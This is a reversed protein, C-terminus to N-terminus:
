CWDELFSSPLCCCCAGPWRRLQLFSHQREGSATIMLKEVAKELDRKAESSGKRTELSMWHFGAGAGGVVGAM